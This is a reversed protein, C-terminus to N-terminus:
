GPLLAGIREQFQGLVRITTQVDAADVEALAESSAANVDALVRQFHAEGAGTLGIGAADPGSGMEMRILGAAALQGLLEAVAADSIQLVSALTRAFDDQRVGPDSTSLLNYTIWTEYTTDERVLVSDLLARGARAAGGLHRGFPVSATPTETM